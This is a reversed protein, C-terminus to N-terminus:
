IEEDAFDQPSVEKVVEDSPKTQTTSPPNKVDHASDAAYINAYAVEPYDRDNMRVEVKVITEPLLKQLMQPTIDLIEVEAADIVAKLKKRGFPIADGTSSTIVVYDNIKTGVDNLVYTVVYAQSGTKTVTAEVNKITALYVGPEVTESVNEPLENYAIKFDSM